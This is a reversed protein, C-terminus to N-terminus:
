KNNKNRYVVVLVSHNAVARQDDLVGHKRVRAVVRAHRRVALAVVRLADDNADFTLQSTAVKVCPTQAFYFCRSTLSLRSFDM